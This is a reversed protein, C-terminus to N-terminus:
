RDEASEEVGENHLRINYTVTDSRQGITRGKGEVWSRESCM